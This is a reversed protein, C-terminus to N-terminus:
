SLWWNALLGLALVLPPIASRAAGRLWPSVACLAFLAPAALWSGFAGAIVRLMVGQVDTHVLFGGVFRERVGALWPPLILVAPYLLTSVLAVLAFALAGPPRRLLEGVVLVAAFGIALVAALPLALHLLFTM